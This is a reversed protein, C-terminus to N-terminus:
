GILQQPSVQFDLCPFSDIHGSITARVHQPWGELPVMIYGAPANIWKEGTLRVRRSPAEYTGRMTYGVVDPKRSSASSFTATIMKGSSPKGILHSPAGNRGCIYKGTWDGTVDQALGIAVALIAFLPIM